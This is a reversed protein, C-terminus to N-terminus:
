VPVRFDIAKRRWEFDRYDHPWDVDFALTPAHVIRWSLGRTTAERQHRRLSRRGFRFHIADAPAVLLANTGSGTGDSAAVAYPPKRAAKIMEVLDHPDLRPLDGHVLLAARAGRRMAYVAGERAAANLNGGKEFLAVLRLERALSLVSRDRSVVVTRRRGVVEAVTRLVHLLTEEVFIRRERRSLVGALRSKAVTLPKMPVIAWIGK